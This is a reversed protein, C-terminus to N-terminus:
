NGITRSISVTLPPALCGPKLRSQWGPSKPQPQSSSVSTPAARIPEPQWPTPNAVPADGAGSLRRVAPAAAASSSGAATAPADGAAPSGTASPVRVLGAIIGLLVALLCASAVWGFSIQGTNHARMTHARM